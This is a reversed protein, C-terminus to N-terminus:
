LVSMGSIGVVFNLERYSNGTNRVFDLILAAYEARISRGFPKQCELGGFPSKVDM